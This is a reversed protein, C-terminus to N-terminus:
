ILSGHEDSGGTQLLDLEKAIKFPYQRSSFKVIGRFRDYPYYVEIGDLGYNKLRKVFDKLFIVNCCCPHALVAIGGSNHIIEIVRKPHRSKLLRIIDNKQELENKACLNNLEENEVVTGTMEDAYQERSITFELPTDQLEAWKKDAYADLMPDNQRLAKAQLMLFENFDANTSTKAAEELEDAIFGFEKAFFETYDVARLGDGDRLVMSRQNLISKVEEVQGENLMNILIKHFEEKTMDEPYFGKGPLEKYGKALFIKNAESDVANMGIQANFLTLTMQADENGKQAEQELFAKFALNHPNDQKMFVEDIAKAAKVLHKLAKKDGEALAEYEKADVKLMEKPILCEKSTRKLLEDHSLNLEFKLDDTM